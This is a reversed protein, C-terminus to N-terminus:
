NKLEVVQGDAILRSRLSSYPVKQVPVNQDIALAAATASAQGLSMFTFEIRIAGYAVHSSSPCSPAFVNTVESEKPVIARYSIGFPGWDDGGFVFGENYAFGDKVIRRVHHTDPPWYAVAIPDEVVSPNVKQTHKETMVVDSVMRRADRVYFMRPWGGNDQFEDKCVGWQSWTNRLAEPLEPDNALFYCLGQTFSLHQKLIKEREAYTGGPYGFNMGYLNASLDHWSGQDTKGNPLNAGPTWLKGGAKTYRIYIEYQSRDYDAPKAFPIRNEPNKTFCLRFCYGQLRHDGEGPTGFPEDQITPILGSKPDGPIKYPDVKVAFQRYTNTGRIGNKTEGYKANAERGIVTTVGAFHILDGELTADIFMKARVTHGNETAIEVIRTGDKKVGGIEKLRSEILIRVKHETLWAGIMKEAVHSEFKYQPGSKGYAKGLREYFEKALGGVASSNKFDKHNDIDTSGLGEVNIGGVHKGTELLVVTKGMKVAQIAAAFGASSGGYVCIDCNITEARATSFTLLAAFLLLRALM